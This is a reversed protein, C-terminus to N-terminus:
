RYDQKSYIISMEKHNNNIDFIKFDKDLLWMYGLIVRVLFNWNDKEIQLGSPPNKIGIIITKENKVIIKIIGWGMTQLVTKLLTLKSEKTANKKIIKNFYRCSIDPINEFLIKKNGVLHFLTNEIPCILKGRFYIRNNQKLQFINKQFADKLTFGKIEPLYNLKNYISKKKSKITFTQKKIRFIYMSSKRTQLSKLDDIESAFLINLIGIFLGFCFNNEGIIRTIGENKTEIKIVDDEKTAHVDDMLGLNIWVKKALINFFLSFPLKRFTEPTLQKVILACWKQAIVKM